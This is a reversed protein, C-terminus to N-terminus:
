KLSIEHRAPAGEHVNDYNILVVAKDGSQELVTLSEAKPTENDVAKASTTVTVLEKLTAPDIPPPLHWIKYAVGAQEQTPGSLVLLGGGPLAALDRIGTDKGLPLPIVRVTGSYRAAGDKFLAKASAGLVYSTDDDVPTRLGLYVDDEIVALGEINTGEAKPKGYATKVPSHRLVDAVRWTYEIAPNSGFSAPSAAKFRTLVYSSPKYKNKGSCSHSGVVYVQENAIAIGEGDLEGFKANEECGAPRETGAITSPKKETFKVKPANTLDLEDKTLITVQGFEEEDIIILCERRADAATGLCAMGSLGRAKGDSSGPADYMGTVKIPTGPSVTQAPVTSSVTCVAVAAFATKLAHRRFDIMHAGFPQM